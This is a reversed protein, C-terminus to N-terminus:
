YENKGGRQNELTTEAIQEKEREPIGVVVKGLNGEEGELVM